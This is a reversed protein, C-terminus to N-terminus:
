YDKRYKALEDAQRQRRHRYEAGREGSNWCTIHFVREIGDQVCTAKVAIVGEGKRASVSGLEHSCAFCPQKKDLTVLRPNEFEYPGTQYESALKTM